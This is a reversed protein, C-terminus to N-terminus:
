RAEWLRFFLTYFITGTLIIIVAIMNSELVFFSYILGVSSCIAIRTLEIKKAWPGNEFLLGINILSFLIYFIVLTKETTTNTLIEFSLFVNMCFLYSTILYINKKISKVGGDYKVYSGDLEPPSMPGEPRWSPSLFIVKLKNVFGSTSKFKGFLLVWNKVQGWFPNWSELPRLIGYAPREKEEEFTGFARDWIIFVGGFNKDLYQPNKAHHVRHHSPTSFLFEIPWWMKGILRTHPLFQYITNIQNCIIWTIPHFGLIALPFYFSFSFFKQFAGQRLAVSYNFEESSHHPEHSGWIISVKHSARHFVYYLFDYGLFCLVWVYWSSKPLNLVRCNEYFWVYSFFFGLGFIIEIIQSFIGMTLNNITDNIRYHDKKGLKRAFLCEVIMGIIFFPIAYKIYHPILKVLEDM